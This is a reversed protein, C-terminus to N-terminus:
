NVVIKELNYASFERIQPEGLSRTIELSLPDPDPDTDYAPGPGSVMFCIFHTNFFNKENVPM